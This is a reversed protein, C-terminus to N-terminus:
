KPVALGKTKLLETIARIREDKTHNNIRKPFEARNNTMLIALQILSFERLINVPSATGSYMKAYLEAYPQERKEKNRQQQASVRTAPSAATTARRRRTHSRGLTSMAPVDLQGPEGIHGASVAAGSTDGREVRRQYQRFYAAQVKLVQGERLDASQSARVKAITKKPKPVAPKPVTSRRRQAALPPNYASAAGHITGLEQTYAPGLLSQQAGVRVHASKLLLRCGRMEDRIIAWPYDLILTSPCYAGKTGQWL